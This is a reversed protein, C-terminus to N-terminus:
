LGAETEPERGARGRAVVPVHGAGPDVVLNASACRGRKPQGRLLVRVSPIEFKPLHVRHEHAQPLRGRDGACGCRGAVALCVAVM